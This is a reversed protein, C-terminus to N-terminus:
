KSVGAIVEFEKNTIKGEMLLGFYYTVDEGTIKNTVIM